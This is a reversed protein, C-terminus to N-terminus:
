NGCKKPTVGEVKERKEDGTREVDHDLEEEQLWFSFACPSIVRWRLPHVRPSIGYDLGNSAAVRSM